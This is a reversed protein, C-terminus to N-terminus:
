IGIEQELQKFKVELQANASEFDERRTLEAKLGFYFKIKPETGSPRVTVVTNDSTIFQIVNSKPLKIEQSQTHAVWFLTLKM